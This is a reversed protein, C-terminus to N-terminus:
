GAGAASTGAGGGGSVTGSGESAEDLFLNKFAEELDTDEVAHQERRAGQEWDKICTLMEVHEPLLRRRRDELIMGSLSFCSESSVTSVPVTMIDHAM